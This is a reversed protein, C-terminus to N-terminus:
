LTLVRISSRKKLDEQKGCLKAKEAVLRRLIEKEKGTM